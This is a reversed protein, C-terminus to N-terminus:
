FIVTSKIKSKINRIKYERLLQKGTFCPHEVGDITYDGTIYEQGHIRSMFKKPNGSSRWFCFHFVGDSIDGIKSETDKHSDNYNFIYFDYHHLLIYEIDYIQLGEEIRLFSQIPLKMLDKIM